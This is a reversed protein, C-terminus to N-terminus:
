PRVHSSGFLATGTSGEWRGAISPLAFDLRKGVRIALGTRM